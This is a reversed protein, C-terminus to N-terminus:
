DIAPVSRALRVGNWRQRRSPREAHRFSVDFDEANEAFGGGRLVRLGANSGAERGDTASYPYPRWQTSCWEWVNGFIDFLGAGTPVKGGVPRPGYTDIERFPTAAGGKVSNGRHWASADIDTPRGAGAAAEWEVETPLRFGGGPVRESLVGSWRTAEEWTINHVPMDGGAVTSPNSFGLSSWQKQTLETKGLYFPEITMSHIPKSAAYRESGIDVAGGSILVMEIDFGRVRVAKALGTAADFQDGIREFGPLDPHLRRWAMARRRAAPRSKPILKLASEFEALAGKWDSQKVRADGASMHSAFTKAREEDLFTMPALKRQGPNLLAHPHHCSECAGKQGSKPCGAAHCTSCLGAIEVAGRPLRDPKVQNRENAVHGASPGHCDRCAIKAAVHKSTTWELVQAVHCRSCVGAARFQEQDQALGALAFAGLAAILRQM